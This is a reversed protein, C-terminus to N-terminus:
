FIFDLAVSFVNTRGNWDATARQVTLVSDPKGRIADAQFKLAADRMFDWRVGVSVTYQDAHSRALVDAVAANIPATPGSDPLGTSLHRRYSRVKSYGVFPTATGLRYGALLMGADQNEFTASQFQFHGVMAQASFPGNDYTAGLSYIRGDTDELAIAGAARVAAPEGTAILASQLQRVLPTEAGGFRLRAYSARWLWDGRQYDLNVGLLRSKRLDRTEGGDSVQERFLGYYTKGRVLGEGAPLTLQADFGDLRASSLTYFYDINPRVTLQSYGIQQSDGRMLFDTGVRGGRLSLYANPAYKLFAWSVQPSFNGRHNYRSVAQVVAELAETAAYNVQLGFSSDIKGSWHDTVGGPQFIDRVIEADANTSRALGFTGFGRLSFASPTAGTGQALVAGPHLVGIALLAYAPLSRRFGSRIIMIFLGFKRSRRPITARQYCAMQM